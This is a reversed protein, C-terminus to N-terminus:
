VLWERIGAIILILFVGPLMNINGIKQKGDSVLNFGSFFLIIFGLSCLQTVIQETFFPAAAWACLGIVMQVLAVPIAALAVIKGYTAGFVIAFPIDILSKLILQSNDGQSALAIPGLIQLGGIGFYLFADMVANKATNSSKGLDSFREELRLWDGLSSGLIFALLIPILNEGVLRGNEVSFSNEAFGTISVIVISIGLTRFKGRDAGKKLVSGLLGGLAIVLANLVIGM